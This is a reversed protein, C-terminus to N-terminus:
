VLPPEKFNPLLLIKNCFKLGIGRDSPVDHCGLKFYCNSTIMFGSSVYAITGLPYFIRATMFLINRLTCERNVSNRKFSISNLWPNSGSVSHM